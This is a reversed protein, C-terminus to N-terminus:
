AAEIINMGSPGKAAHKNQQVLLDMIDVWQFASFVTEDEALQPTGDPCDFMLTNGCIPQQGQLLGFDRTLEYKALSIRDCQRVLNGIASFNDTTVRALGDRADELPLVPAQLWHDLLARVDPHYSSARQGSCSLLSELAQKVAEFTGEGWSASYWVQLVQRLYTTWSQPPSETPSPAQRLLEWVVHAKAVSYASMDVGIFRLPEDSGRSPSRNLNAAFLMGLDVFGVAVHTTGQHLVEKRYAQNSFSHRVLATYPNAKRKGFISGPVAKSFYWELKAPDSTGLRKLVYRPEAEWDKQKFFLEFRHPLAYAHEFSDRLFHDAWGPDVGLPFGGGKQLLEARFDPMPDITRGYAKIQMEPTLSSEVITRFMGLQNVDLSTKSQLLSTMSRREELQEQTSKRIANLTKSEILSINQPRIALPATTGELLIGYRGGVEKPVSKVVGGKGNYKVMALDHLSVRDGIVFSDRVPGSATKKKSKKGM